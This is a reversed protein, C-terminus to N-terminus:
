AFVIVYIATERFVFPSLLCLIVARINNTHQNLKQCHMSGELKGIRVILIVIDRYVSIVLFDVGVVHGFRTM